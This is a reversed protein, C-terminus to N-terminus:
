RTEVTVLFAGINAEGEGDETNFTGSYVTKGSLRKVVPVFQDSSDVITRNGDIVILAHNGTQVSGIAWLSIKDAPSKTTITFAVPAGADERATSSFIFSGTIIGTLTANGDLNYGGVKPFALTTTVGLQYTLDTYGFGQYDGSGPENIVVPTTKLGFDGAKFVYDKHNPAGFNILYTVTDAASRGAFALSFVVALLSLRLTPKM